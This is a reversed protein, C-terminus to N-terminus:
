ETPLLSSEEPAELRAGPLWSCSISSDKLFWNGGCRAKVVQRQGSKDFM